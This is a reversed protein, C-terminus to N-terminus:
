DKLSNGVYSAFIFIDETGPVRQAKLFFKTLLRFILMLSTVALLIWTALQLVPTLNSDTVTVQASRPATMRATFTAQM